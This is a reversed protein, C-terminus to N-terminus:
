SELDVNYCGETSFARGLASCVGMDPLYGRDSNIVSEDVLAECPPWPGETQSIILSVEANSGDRVDEIASRVTDFDSPRKQGILLVQQSAKTGTALAIEDKMNWMLRSRSLQVTALHRGSVASVVSITVEDDTPTRDPAIGGVSPTGKPRATGVDGASGGRQLECRPSSPSASKRSSGVHPSSASRQLEHRAGWRSALDTAVEDRRHLTSISAASGSALSCRRFSPPTTGPSSAGLQLEDKGGWRHHSSRGQASVTPMRQLSSAAPLSARHNPSGPLPPLSSIIRSASASRSMTPALDHALRSAAQGYHRWGLCAVPSSYNAGAAEKNCKRDWASTAVQM